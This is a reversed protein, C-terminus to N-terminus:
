HAAGDEEALSREDRAPGRWMCSCVARYKGDYRVKVKHQEQRWQDHEKALRVFKEHPSRYVSM